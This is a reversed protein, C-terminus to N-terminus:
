PSKEFQRLLNTAESISNTCAFQLWLKALSRDPPAGDGAAYLQALRLQSYGDGALAKQGYFRFTNQRLEQSKRQQDAAKIRANELSYTARGNLKQLLEEESATLTEKSVRKRLAKLSNVIEAKSLVIKPYLSGGPKSQELLIIEAAQDFFPANDSVGDVMAQCSLLDLEALAWYQRLEHSDIAKASPSDDNIEDYWWKKSEAWHHICGELSMQFQSPVRGGSDKIKEIALAKEQLLDCFSRYTVGLELAKHVQKLESLYKSCAEKQAENEPFQYPIALEVGALHFKLYEEATQVIQGIASNLMLLGLIQVPIFLKLKM